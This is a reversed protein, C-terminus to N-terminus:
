AVRWVKDGHLMFLRPENGHLARLVPASCSLGGTYTGFAPLIMLDDSVCFCPGSFSASGANLRAKPHFHGVIEPTVRKTGPQHAKDPEHRLVVGDVRLDMVRVGECFDPADPDHNGGIWIWEEALACLSVLAARDAAAMRAGAAGDHFSDGLCVVRRPRWAEVVRRLRALTDYSDLAPVLRGRAAAGSGKELHLDSVILMGCAPVYAAGSGDLVIGLGAFRITRSSRGAM